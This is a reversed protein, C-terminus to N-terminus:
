SVSVLPYWWAEFEKDVVRFGFPGGLGEVAVVQNVPASHGAGDGFPGREEGRSQGGEFEAAPELHLLKFHPPM